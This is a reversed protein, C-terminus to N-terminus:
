SRAVERYIKNSSSFINKSVLRTIYVFPVLIGGIIIIFLIDEEEGPAVVGM